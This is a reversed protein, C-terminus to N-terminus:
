HFSLVLRPDGLCIRIHVAFADRILRSFPSPPIHGRTPRIPGTLHPHVPVAYGPGSRPGRPYLPLDARVSTSVLADMESVSCPFLSPLLPCSPRHCVLGSPLGRRVTRGQLRVPSFGGYPHLSALQQELPHSDRRHFKGLQWRLSIRRRHSHDIRRFGPLLLRPQSPDAQDTGVLSALLDVPRLSLSSCNLGSIPERVLIPTHPYQFHRSKGYVDFALTM